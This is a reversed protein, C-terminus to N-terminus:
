LKVLDALRRRHEGPSGFLQHSSKARRLYLHADHEWTFGIGGHMQLNEQAAQLYTESARAGAVCAAVELEAPDEQAAWAAYLVASRSQEVSLLVDACRHKLAQFSGIPRGFQERLHSYAVTLDLCRAAGGVQEAALAAIAVDHAHALTAAAAAGTALVTGEADNLSVIALRRTRDLTRVPTVEVGPASTEVAVLVPENATVATVLLVDAVGADLVYRKVGTVRATGGDIRAQTDAPPRFFADGEAEALTVVTTGDAVGRLLAGAADSGVANLAATAIVTALFPGDYLVRGLEELVLLQEALSAGAGGWEEPIALAHAGLQSALQQWVERDFATVPDEVDLRPRLTEVPAKADLFGRLTTRFEEQEASWTLEM